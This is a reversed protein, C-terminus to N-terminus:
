PSSPQLGDSPVRPIRIDMSDPTSQKTDKFIQGEEGSSNPDTIKGEEMTVNEDLEVITQTPTKFLEGLGLNSAPTRPSDPPTPQEVPSM